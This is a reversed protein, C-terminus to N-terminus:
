INSAMPNQPEGQPTSMHLNFRHRRFFALILALVGQSFAVSFALKGATAEQTYHFGKVYFVAILILLSVFVIDEM